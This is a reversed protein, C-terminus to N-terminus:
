IYVFFLAPQLCRFVAFAAAASLATLLPVQKVFHAQMKAVNAAPGTMNVLTRRLHMTSANKFVCGGGPNAHSEAEM